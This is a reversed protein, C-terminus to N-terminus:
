NKLRLKRQLQWPQNGELLTQKLGKSIDSWLLDSVLQSGLEKWTFIFKKMPFHQKKLSKGLTSKGRSFDRVADQTQLTSICPYM